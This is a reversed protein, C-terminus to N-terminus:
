LIWRKTRDFCFSNVALKVKTKELIKLALKSNVTKLELLIDNKKAFFAWYKVNGKGKGLRVDNPKKTIPNTPYVRFFVKAKKKLLRKLFRRVSEM